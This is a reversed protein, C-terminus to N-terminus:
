PFVFGDKSVWPEGGGLGFNIPGSSPNVRCLEWDYELCWVCPLGLEDECPNDSFLSFGRFCWDFVVKDPSYRYVRWFWGGFSDRRFVLPMSFHEAFFLGLSEGVECYPVV